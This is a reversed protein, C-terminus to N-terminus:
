YSGEYHISAGVCYLIDNSIFSHLGIRSAHDAPGGPHRLLLEALEECAMEHAPDDCMCARLAAAAAAAEGLEAQTPSPPARVRAATM